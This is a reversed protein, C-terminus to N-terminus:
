LLRQWWGVDHWADFKRGVERYIGVLDFGMAEHLGVSAENPLAIGAFAAHYGMGAAAPLLRAYLARAVGMRQTGPAVYVAVDISTRYAARTRHESAYAYGVVRGDLEAVLYPHRQLITTIRREIETIDPPVEEFSITTDSVYPAYIAQVAPADGMVIQRVHM